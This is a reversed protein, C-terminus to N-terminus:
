GVNVIGMDFGVKVVYFFFVSYMVECVCDNGCFSFSINSVGGLIKM